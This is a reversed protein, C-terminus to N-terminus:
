ACSYISLAGHVKFILTHVCSNQIRLDGVREERGLDFALGAVENKVVHM